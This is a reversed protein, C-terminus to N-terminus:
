TRDKAKCSGCSKRGKRYFCRAVPGRPGCHSGCLPCRALFCKIHTEGNGRVVAWRLPVTRRCSSSSRPGETRHILHRAVGLPWSTMKHRKKKKKKSKMFFAKFISKIRNTSIDNHISKILARSAITKRTSSLIQLFIYM